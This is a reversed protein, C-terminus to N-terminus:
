LIVTQETNCTIITYKRVIALLAFFWNFRIRLIKTVFVPVPVFSAELAGFAIVRQHFLRKSGLILAQQARLAIRIFAGGLAEVALPGDHRTGAFHFKFSVVPMFGTKHTLIASLRYPCLRQDGFLTAIKTHRTKLLLKSM